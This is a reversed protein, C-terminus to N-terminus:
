DGAPRATRGRAAWGYLALGAALAISTDRIERAGISTLLWVCAAITLGVLLPAARVVFPASAGGSRRRFVVLAAATGIYILLRAIVNLTLLYLFSGSVALGLGVVSTVLLAAHPTRFREHVRAFWAPLQRQEAMAFLVRPGVLITALLTGTTSLLAGLSIAAGGAPGVFRVAADALPRSSGALEPLTGLCVAQIGVYLVTSLGIAVFLSFPIDRAPSRMEGTAIVVAEFGAFAFVLQLVAQSFPGAALPEAPAFRAVDLAFLGVGVFLFLPLLKAVAFVSATGAAQRVGVWNVATLALIAGSTVLVRGLGAAAPEWFFAFYSALVHAIAAISTVRTLWMLWGVLFGPLPGFAQRAYLYPGGTGSFRSAVEALCLAVWSIVVACVLYALLAYPGLLGDAKSPLGFIGSGVISNVMLAVLAWRGVGRVLGQAGGPPMFMSEAVNEGWRPGAGTRHVPM